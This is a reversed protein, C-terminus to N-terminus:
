RNKNPLFSNNEANEPLMPIKTSVTYNETRGLETVAKEANAARKIVPAAYINKIVANAAVPADYDINGERNTYVPTYFYENNEVEEIKYSTGPLVKMEAIEDAKLEIIGIKKVTREEIPDTELANVKKM